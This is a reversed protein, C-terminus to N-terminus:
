VHQEETTSFILHAVRRVCNNRFSLLLLAIILIFTLSYPIALSSMIWVGETLIHAKIRWLFGVHEIFYNVIVTIYRIRTIKKKLIFLRWSVRWLLNIKIIRLWQGM